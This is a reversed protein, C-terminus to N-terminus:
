PRPAPDPGLYRWNDYELVLSITLQFTTMSGDTRRATVEVPQNFYTAGIPQVVKAGGVLTMREVTATAEQANLSHVYEEESMRSTVVLSSLRYLSHWDHAELADVVKQAVAVAESNSVKTTSLSHGVLLTGIAIVAFTALGIPITVKKM